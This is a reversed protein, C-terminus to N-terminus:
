QAAHLARAVDGELVGGGFAAEGRDLAGALLDRFLLGPAADDVGDVLKGLRGARDQDLADELGLGEVVDGLQELLGDVGDLRDVVAVGFGQALFESDGPELLNPICWSVLAKPRKTRRPMQQAADFLRLAMGQRTTAQPVPRCTRKATTM